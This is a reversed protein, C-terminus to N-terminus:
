LKKGNKGNKGNKGCVHVNNWALEKGCWTCYVPESPKKSNLTVKLGKLMANVRTDSAFNIAEIFKKGVEAYDEITMGYEDVKNKDECFLVLKM